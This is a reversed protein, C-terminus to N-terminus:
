NEMEEIKKIIELGDKTLRYIRGKREDPTICEVIGMNRLDKLKMSINPLSTKLIKSLQTPTKPTKLSLLLNKRKKSKLAFSIQKWSM